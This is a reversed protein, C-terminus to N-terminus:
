KNALNIFKKGVKVKVVFKNKVILKKAKKKVICKKKGKSSLTYVKGQKTMFVLNGSKKIFGAAKIGSFKKSKGNGKWTLKGKTLKYKSTVKNGVSLCSYGAKKKVSKKTVVPTPTVNTTDKNSPTVTPNTTPSPSTSSNNPTPAPTNPTPTPVVPTPSPNIIPENPNELYKQIQDYTLLPCVEGSFKIYGTILSQNNSYDIILDAVEDVYSLNNEDTSTTIFNYIISDHKQLDYNWWRIVHNSDLVYITSTNTDIGINIIGGGDSALNRDDKDLYLVDNDGVKLTINIDNDELIWPTGNVDFTYTIAKSTIPHFIFCVTLSMVMAMFIAIKKRM